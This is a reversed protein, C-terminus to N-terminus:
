LSNRWFRYFYLHNIFTNNWKYQVAPDMEEVEEDKDGANEIVENVRDYFASMGKFTFWGSVYSKFNSLACKIDDMCVGGKM